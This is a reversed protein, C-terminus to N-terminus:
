ENIDNQRAGDENTPCRVHVTGMTNQDFQATSPGSRAMVDRTYGPSAELRPTRIANGNYKGFYEGVSSYTRIATIYFGAAVDRVRCQACVRLCKLFHVSNVIYRQDHLSKLLLDSFIHVHNTKSQKTTTM